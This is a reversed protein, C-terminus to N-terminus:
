GGFFTLPKSQYVSVIEYGAQILEAIFNGLEDAPIENNVYKLVPHNAIVRYKM